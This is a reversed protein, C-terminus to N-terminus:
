LSEKYKLEVKKKNDINFVYENCITNYFITKEGNKSECIKSPKGWLSELEEVSIKLQTKEFVNLYYKEYSFVFIITCLFLGIIAKLIFLIKKSTKM